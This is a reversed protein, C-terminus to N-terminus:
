KVSAVETNILTQVQGEGVGDRYVIITDPLFKKGNFEFYAKIAQEIIGAIEVAMETGKKMLLVRSYYKTFNEDLSAVIGMCSQNGSILKHYIDVGILM